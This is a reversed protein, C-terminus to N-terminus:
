AGRLLDAVVDAARRRGGEVARAVEAVEAGMTVLPPEVTGDREQGLGVTATLGNCLCLRGVTDSEQGGKRVYADVPESPCRYGVTGDPRAYPTRLYGLDCIRRRADRVGPDAVTGPLQAVKFPFGSPSALPDTRVALGARAATAVVEARLEETIGSEECLAFPTGVQVGRAGAARAARLDDASGQGGAVWFPLGLEAIAALDVEDRPGYVPDGSEDLRRPGRPPANHGGASPLEVVVGDPRTDPDRALFRALSVSSVIALFPPRRRPATPGLDAPDFRARVETGAALGAVDVRVDVARGAALRTLLQPIASPIGAGMLVADVDALLAGYLSPAIAMQVKELHNVGVPGDHGEKALWVEAFNAVVVLEVHSRSPRIRWMPHARYGAGPRRGGDAYWRRLVRDAVDPIPFREYARRLHGGPDGDQLQRAHVADIATGSVVGLQGTAAVARALPWGSVGVGMGGQVVACGEIGVEVERTAAHEIRRAQLEVNLMNSM